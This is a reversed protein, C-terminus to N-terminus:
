ELNGSSFQRHNLIQGRILASNDRIPYLFIFDVERRSLVLMSSEESILKRNAGM